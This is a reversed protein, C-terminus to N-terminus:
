RVRDAERIYSKLDGHAMFPLIVLPQSEKIAVGILRLVNEHDFDKMVAAEELFAGVEKM